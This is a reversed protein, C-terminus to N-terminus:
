TAPTTIRGIAGRLAEPVGPMAKIRGIARKWRGRTAATSAGNAASLRAEEAPTLAPLQGAKDRIEVLTQVVVQVEAAV